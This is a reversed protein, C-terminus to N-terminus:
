HRDSSEAPNLKQMAEREKNEDNQLNPSKEIRKVAVEVEHWMYLFVSM